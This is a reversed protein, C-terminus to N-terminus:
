VEEGVLARAFRFEEAFADFATEIQQAMEPTVAADANLEALEERAAELHAVVGLTVQLGAVSRRASSMIQERRAEDAKIEAETRNKLRDEFEQRMGLYSDGAAAGIDRKREDPLADIMREVQEMPADRLLAKAGAEIEATTAHSGRRWDPKTDPRATAVWRVIERVWWESRDFRQAIERNSLTPDAKQAALIETGARWYFDDGRALYDKAKDLHEEAKQNM